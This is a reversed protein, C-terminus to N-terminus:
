KSTFLIEFDPVPGHVTELKFIATNAGTYGQKQQAQLHMTEGKKLVLPLPPLQVMFPDTIKGLLEAAIIEITGGTNTIVIDAPSSSNLAVQKQETSLITATAPLPAIPRLEINRLYHESGESQFQIRGGTVQQHLDTRFINYLRNVVWGNVIYVADAGRAVLELTNWEGNPNEFNASHCVRHTYPMIDAFPDYQQVEEKGDRTQSLQFVPTGGGVNHYDAMDGEQIQLEISRMWCKTGYDYPESCHFLLGGDRKANQRPPWKKEGWKTQFRLHYNSFSQKTAIGGWDQGSIHLTNDTISFVHHPDRNLGIPTQDTAADSPKLYTDWDSLDKGNFLRQWRTTTQQAYSPHCYAVLLLM